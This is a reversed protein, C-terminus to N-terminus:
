AAVARFAKGIDCAFHARHNEVFSWMANGAREVVECNCAMGISENGYGSLEGFHM